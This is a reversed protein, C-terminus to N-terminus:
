APMRLDSRAIIKALTERAREVNKEDNWWRSIGSPHPFVTVRRGDVDESELYCGSRELSGDGWCSSRSVRTGSTVNSSPRKSRSTSRFDGGKGRGAGPFEPLLNRRDFVKEMEAEPLGALEALRRGSGRESDLPLAGNGTRSPAQGYVM